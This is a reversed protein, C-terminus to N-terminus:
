RGIGIDGREVPELLRQEAGVRDYVVVRRGAKVQFLQEFQEPDGLLQLHLGRAVDTGRLHELVHDAPLADLDAEARDRLDPLEFRFAQLQDPGQGLLHLIGGRIGGCDDGLGRFGLDRPIEHTEDARRGCLRKKGGRSDVLYPIPTPEISSLTSTCSAPSLIMRDLWSSAVRLYTTSSILFSPACSM